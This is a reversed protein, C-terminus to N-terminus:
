LKYFDGNIAVSALSGYTAGAPLSIPSSLTWNKGGDTSTYAAPENRSFATDKKIIGVATCYSISKCSVGLLQGQGYGIPLSLTTFLAWHQGYDSSAYALPLNNSGDTDFSTGVTACNNSSCNVAFLQAQGKGPPLSDLGFTPGWFKGTDKSIGGNPLHDGFMENFTDDIEVCNSGSCTISKLMSLTNGDPTSDIAFSRTWNKGGDSSIYRLSFYTHCCLFTYDGGALCTNGSCTVTFLFGGIGDGAPLRFPSSLTWSKGGDDSTYALPLIKQDNFNRNDSTGVATCHNGTCFVSTLSGSVQGDPLSFPSVLTWHKGADNSTYALPLLPNNQASSSGVAVCTESSCSISDLDGSTHGLPLTFSQALTWNKGGDNSVYAFPKVPSYSGVAIQPSFAGFKAVWAMEKAPHTSQIPNLLPFDTSNTLGTVYSNRDADVATAFGRDNGGSGGFYTSFLIPIDIDIITYFSTIAPGNNSGQFPFVTPFDTSNTFGTIHSRFLGDAAVGMVRDDGGTGGLYTSAIVQSGTHDIRSVFGNFGRGHGAGRNTAQAANITPFDTSNTYGGFIAAGNPDLAICTPYDNGGSGGFYTSFVLGTGNANFRTLFGTQGAGRPGPRPQIANLVPFDKSNTEGTVFINQEEDIAIGNGEDQGGSGGLYTSFVLDTGSPNFKTVYATFKPGKNTAQFPNKIPFDKSTTEGTVYAFGSSDVAIANGEQNEGSGGLYTSYVLANGEPNLKTVFATFDRAGRNTAQYPNQLPFDKSNTEGTIYASGTSDVAIAFGEDNGGSGGLYTSYVIATGERNIKTVFATRGPGNNTSQVGGEIPFDTSKTYGTVYVAPNPGNDLAIGLGCNDESGGLYTSYDLVPDIVLPKTNDYKGIKFGVEKKASLIFKGAILHKKGKVLQYITPKHMQLHEKGQMAIFLNGHKDLQLAKAGVLKFNIKNPNAGPAVHIDYELQHNNGYFVMDIGPYLQQYNVQAFNSINTHWKKRDNGIFYNTKSPLAEKGTIIPHKNGGVFQLRLTSKSIPTVDLYKLKGNKVASAPPTRFDFVIEAPTFYMTYGIMRVLFNVQSNTQGVNTEFMLPLKMVSASMAIQSQTKHQQQMLTFFLLLGILKIIFLRHSAFSLLTM